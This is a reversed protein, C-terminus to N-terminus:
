LGWSKGSSFGSKTRFRFGGNEFHDVKKTLFFKKSLVYIVDVATWSKSKLKQGLVQGGVKRNEDVFFFWTKPEFGSNKTLIMKLSKKKLM